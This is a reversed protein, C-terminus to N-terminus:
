RTAVDSLVFASRNAGTGLRHGGFGVSSGVVVDEDRAAEALEQTLLM